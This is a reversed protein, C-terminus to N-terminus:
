WKNEKLAKRITDTIEPLYRGDEEITELMKLAIDNLTEPRRANRLSTAMSWTDDPYADDLFDCCADLEIDAILPAVKNVVMKVIDYVDRSPEIRYNIVDENTKPTSGYEMWSDEYAEWLISEQPAFPSDVMTKLKPVKNLEAKTADNPFELDAAASFWGNNCLTQICQDIATKYAHNILFVDRNVSTTNKNAAQRLENVFREAPTHNM